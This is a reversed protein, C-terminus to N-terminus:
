NIHQYKRINGYSKLVHTVNFDFETLAYYSRLLKKFWVTIIFVADAKLPNRPKM